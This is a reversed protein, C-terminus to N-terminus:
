WKGLFVLISCVFEAPGACVLAKIDINVAAIDKALAPSTIFCKAPSMEITVPIM